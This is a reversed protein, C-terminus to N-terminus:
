FKTNSWNHALSFIQSRSLSMTSSRQSASKDEKGALEETQFGFTTEFGRVVGVGEIVGGERKEGIGFLRMECWFMGICDGGDNTFSRQKRKKKKKVM